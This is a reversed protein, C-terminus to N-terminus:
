LIVDENIEGNCCATLESGGDKDFKTMEVSIMLLAIKMGKVVDILLSM